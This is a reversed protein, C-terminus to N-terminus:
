FWTNGTPNLCPGPLLQTGDNRVAPYTMDGLRSGLRRGRRQLYFSYRSGETEALAVPVSRGLRLLKNWNSAPSRAETFRWSVREPPLAVGSDDQEGSARLRDQPMMVPNTLHGPSDAHGCGGCARDM